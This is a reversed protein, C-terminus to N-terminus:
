MGDKNLMLYLFYTVVSKDDAIYLTYNRDRLDAYTEPPSRRMDNTMM